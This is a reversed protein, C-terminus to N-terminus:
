YLGNEINQNSVNNYAKKSFIRRQSETKRMILSWSWLMDHDKRTQDRKIDLRM